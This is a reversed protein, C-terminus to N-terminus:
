PRISLIKPTKGPAAVAMADILERAEGPGFEGLDKVAATRSFGWLLATLVFSPLWALLAVFGPKLSHGLGRVVELGEVLAGTLRSAEAWTLDTSRKWTLLAAV